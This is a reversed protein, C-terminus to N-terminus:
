CDSYKVGINNLEMKEPNLMQMASQAIAEPTLGHKSLLIKQDGHEIFQDPLGVLKIKIDSLDESEAIMETVASGFGGNIVHEEITMIRGIRLALSQILEKDLPKVFRANVVATSINNRELIESAEIAPYVMSGIALLLIDQGDRIIEAKGMPLSMLEDPLPVGLAEGRPYRLAVPGDHDIATKLMHQLEAEDKPAMVAMNPIHRLYAFDFTGHHTPGDAGVLGARDLAFIVPLNQLCVDHVIQDYGRQLFTSYVALVPKMSQSALGAAFTVAHQEAIGVDFCRDPYEAQFDSVGTGDLMAATIAVIRKDKSGLNILAKSFAGTYTINKKKRISQGTTIDFSSSSHFKTPNSEALKYGKGKQTVVHVAIPGGINKVRQLTNILNIINHGDIPGFYRFGLSDFLMNDMILTKASEEIRKILRTAQKGFKAVIDAVDSRFRNYTATARLHDIHQLVGGVTPSISMENDNLIVILDTKTHGANNLAEFAMGGTLSGDGIVAIVKYDEDKIDRAKAMGLAASISTSAHGTGFCDYGCECIKPFGSLGEYQRLTDFKERRGTLIKHAYCQHGVDWIIKDHTPDFTRLLAITLEVVGLSSALHGGTMSVTSIITQRIESALEPLQSIKVEKLDEPQNIQELLSM